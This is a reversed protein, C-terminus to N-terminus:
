SDKSSKSENGASTGPALTDIEINGQAGGEAADDEDTQAYSQTGHTATM